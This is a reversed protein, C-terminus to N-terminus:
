SVQEWTFVEAPGVMDKNCIVGAPDYTCYKGTQGGRLAIQQGGLAEVTFTEWGQLNGSICQVRGDDM